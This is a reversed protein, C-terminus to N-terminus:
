KGTMRSKLMRQNDTRLVGGLQTARGTVVTKPCNQQLQQELGALRQRGDVPNEKSIPDYFQQALFLLSSCDFLGSQVIAKRIMGFLDSLM